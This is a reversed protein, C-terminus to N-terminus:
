KGTILINEFKDCDGVINQLVSEVIDLYNSIDTLFTEAFIRKYKITEKKPLDVNEETVQYQLIRINDNDVVVFKTEVPSFKLSFVINSGITLPFDPNLVLIDDSHESVYKKFEEMVNVLFNKKTHINIEQVYPAKNIYKLVVRTGLDCNFYNLISDNVFVCNNVKVDFDSFFEELVFLKAFVIKNSFVDDTILALSCYIPQSSFAALSWCSSLSNKSIFVNFPKLYKGIKEFSPLNSIEVLRYVLDQKYNFYKNLENEREPPNNQFIIKDYIYQFGKRLKSVTDVSAPAPKEVYDLIPKIHVETLFGLVGPSVPKVNDLFFM